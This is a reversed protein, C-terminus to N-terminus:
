AKKMQWFLHGCVFGVGFPVAPYKTAWEWTVWSITAETGGVNWAWIDYIILIIVLAILLIQTLKKPNM